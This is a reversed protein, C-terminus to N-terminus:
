SKARHRQQSRPVHLGADQRHRDSRDGLRGDRDLWWGHERRDEAMRCDPRRGHLHSLQRQAQRRVRRQRGADLQDHRGGVGLAAAASQAAGERQRVAGRLRPLGRQRGRRGARGISTLVHTVRDVNWLESRAELVVDPDDRKDEAIWVPDYFPPERMTDAVAAKRTEYDAPRATFNLTVVELHIDDPVAVLRGFFLPVIESGNDWSLWGWVKRGAWCASQASEPDRDRARRIRRGLTRGRFCIGGRGRSTSARARVHDRVRRGLRFYFMRPAQGFIVTWLLAAAADLAISCSSRNNNKRGLAPTKSPAPWAASSRADDSGIRVRYRRGRRPGAGRDRRHDHNRGAGARSTEASPKGRKNTSNKGRDEAAAKEQRRTEARDQGCAPGQVEGKQRRASQQRKARLSPAQRAANRARRARRM